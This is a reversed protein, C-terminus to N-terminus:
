IGHRAKIKRLSEKMPAGGYWHSYDFNAHFAGQFARRRHELFMVYLEQEISSEADYFQLLDPAFTWGEPTKLIGDKYLAQVIRIAEAMLRDTERVLQDGQALQDKAYSPSHCRSCIKEMKERPGQFDEKTLRAVKGVKVVDLRPTPEGKGDLVGLAQLITVRDALWEPDDEPLRVALFGWSTMVAHNGGDMHCTQCTPARKTGKGEMQWIAGHKSTSWMEWQPHDFGM